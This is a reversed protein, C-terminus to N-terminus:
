NETSRSVGKCMKDPHITTNDSMVNIGFYQSVPGSYKTVYHINERKNSKQHSVQARNACIRCLEKVTNMHYKLTHPIDTTAQKGPPVTSETSAM